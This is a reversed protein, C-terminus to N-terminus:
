AAANHLEKANLEKVDLGCNSCRNGWLARSGLPLWSLARSKFFLDSCRPCQQRARAAVCALLLSWFFGSALLIILMAFPVVILPKNGVPIGGILGIALFCKASFEATNGRRRIEELRTREEPTLM